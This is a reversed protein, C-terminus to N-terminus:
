LYKQIFPLADKGNWKHGEEHISHFLKEQAGFLSYASRAIDVQPIVNDIGPAGNLHDLKGSEVLFPRPAILAGIDGHRAHALYKSHLQV